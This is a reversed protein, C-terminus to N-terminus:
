VLAVIVCLVWSVDYSVQLFSFIRKKRVLAVSVYGALWGDSVDKEEEM